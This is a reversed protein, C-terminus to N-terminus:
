QQAQEAYCALRSVYKWGAQSAMKLVFAGDMGSLAPVRIPLVMTSSLRVGATKEINVHGMAIIYSHMHTTLVVLCLFLHGPGWGRVTQLFSWATSGFSFPVRLCLGQHCGHDSSMARPFLQTVLGLGSLHWSRTSDTGLIVGSLVLPPSFFSTPYM